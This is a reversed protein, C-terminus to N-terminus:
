RPTVRGDSAAARRARDKAARSSRRDIRVASSRQQRTAMRESRASRAHHPRATLASAINKPESTETRGRENQAKTRHKPNGADAHALLPKISVL